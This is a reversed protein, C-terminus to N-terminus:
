DLSIIRNELWRKKDEYDPMFKQVLKWFRFSHEKVKLHCIEHLVVYDIVDRPARLLNVNFNLIKDKTASGWRSKLKKINIKEPFVDLKKSYFEVRKRLFKESFPKSKSKKKTRHKFELQKKFIWGKKNEIIRKIENSKKNQPTRIEVGSNDVRIESTKRRKSKVVSYEIVSNGYRVKGKM